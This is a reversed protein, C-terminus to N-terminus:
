GVIKGSEIVRSEYILNYWHDTQGAKVRDDYVKLMWFFPGIETM